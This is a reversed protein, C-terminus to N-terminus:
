RFARLIISVPRSLKSGAATRSIKLRSSNGAESGATWGHRMHTKRKRKQQIQKRRM